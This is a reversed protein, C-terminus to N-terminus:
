MPQLGLQVGEEHGYRLVWTVRAPAVLVDDSGPYCFDSWHSLFLEYSTLVATEADWSVVVEDEGQAQLRSRLWESAAKPDTADSQAMSRFRETRLGDAGDFTGLRQALRAAQDPAIPRILALSGRFFAGHTSQTWRWALPFDELAYFESVELQIDGM